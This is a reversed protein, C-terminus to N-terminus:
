LNFSVRVKGMLPRVFPPGMHLGCVGHYGWKSDPHSWLRRACPISRVKEILSTMGPLGYCNPSVQLVREGKTVGKAALVGSVDIPQFKDLCETHSLKDGPLRDCSPRSVHLPPWM